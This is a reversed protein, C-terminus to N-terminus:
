CFSVTCRNEPSMQSFLAAQELGLSPPHNLKSFCRKEKLVYSTAKGPWASLELEKHSLSEAGGSGSFQTEEVQSGGLSVCVCVCPQPSGEESFGLDTLLPWQLIRLVM